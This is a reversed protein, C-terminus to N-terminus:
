IDTAKLTNINIGPGMTTSVSVSKLYKGKAGAPKAKVIEEIITSYNDLLDKEKFSAKGIVLHIIGYKEIRYEVKGGKVDKVAKGVDMTVTGAKPNPMKGQPGLVKGIKGIVSMMDPTAIASDFDMWGKEIKEVLDQAGVFDAGADKAEKEKEGKAFVLVIQEKGTGHPLKVSGRVQQDAKKPDVGLRIHAEVSEDFKTRASEKLLKIAEKPKYTDEKIKEKIAKYSKGRAM